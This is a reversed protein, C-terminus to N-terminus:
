DIGGDCGEEGGVRGRRGDEDVVGADGLRVGDEVCGVGEELLDEADVHEAM